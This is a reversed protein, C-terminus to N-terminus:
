TRIVEELIPLLTDAVIRGATVPVHKGPLGPAYITRCPISAAPDWGGPSSALEMLLTKTPMDNLLRQTLIRHPITNFIVAYGATLPLLSDEDTLHIARCHACQIRAVDKTKRAAVTVHAGLARLREALAAGIRGYGLIAVYAGDLTIDLAQMALCIAGEATPVANRIQLEDSQAYDILLVGNKEAEAAVSPAIRGGFVPMRGGIRTFLEAAGIPTQTESLPCYLCNMKDFAPMPLIVARSGELVDELSRGASGEKDTEKSPLGFTHVDGGLVALRRIMSLSRADGGLCAIKARGLM